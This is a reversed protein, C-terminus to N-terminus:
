YGEEGAEYIWGGVKDGGYVTEEQYGGGEVGRYDQDCGYVKEHGRNTGAHLVHEVPAHGLLRQLMPM